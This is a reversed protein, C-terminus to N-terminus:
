RINPLHFVGCCLQPTNTHENFALIFYTITLAIIFIRNIIDDAQMPVTVPMQLYPSYRCSLSQM